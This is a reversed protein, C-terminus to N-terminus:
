SGGSRVRGVGGGGGSGFFGGPPAEPQTVGQDSSPQQVPATSSPSSSSSDTATASRGPFTGAALFAFVATLGAALIVSFTTWGRLRQLGRDRAAAPSTEPNWM